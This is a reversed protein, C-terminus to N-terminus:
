SSRPVDQCSDAKLLAPSTMPLGEWAERNKIVPPSIICWDVSLEWLFSFLFFTSKGTFLTNRHSRGWRCFLCSLYSRTKMPAPCGRIGSAKAPPASAQNRQFVSPLNYILDKQGQPSHYCWFDPVSQIGATKLSFILRNKFNMTCSNHAENLEASSCSGKPPLHYKLHAPQTVILDVASSSNFCIRHIFTSLPSPLRFSIHKWKIFRSPFKGLM